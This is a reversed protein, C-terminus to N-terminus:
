RDNGQTGKLLKDKMFYVIGGVFSVVLIIGLWLISISLAQEKGIYRGLFFVYAGERIGLGNLSPLMSIITIIPLALFILGLSINVLLGKALIAVIFVSIVQAIVSTYLAFLIVRMNGKYRAIANLFLPIRSNFQLFKLKALFRGARKTIFDTSILYVVVLSCLIMALIIKTVLPSKFSRDAVKKLRVSLIVMILIYLISASVFYLPNAKKLINLVNKINDRM